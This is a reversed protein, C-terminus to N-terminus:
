EDTNLEKLDMLMEPLYKMVISTPIPIQLVQVDHRVKKKGGLASKLIEM